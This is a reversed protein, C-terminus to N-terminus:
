LDEGPEAWVAAVASDLEDGLEGATAPWFAWLGSLVLVGLGSAAARWLGGAWEAWADPRAAAPLHAMVRNVFAYPPQDSPPHARAAALLKRLLPDHHM